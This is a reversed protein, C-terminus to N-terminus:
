LLGHSSAGLPDDTGKSIPLGRPSHANERIEVVWSSLSQKSEGRPSVVFLHDSKCVSTASTLMGM